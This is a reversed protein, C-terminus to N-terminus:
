DDLGPYRWWSDVLGPWEATFGHHVVKRKAAWAHILTPRGGHESLIALHIAIGPRWAILAIDAPRQDGTAVPKYFTEIASRVTRPSPQEVYRSFPAWLDPDISLVGEHEGVARPLNWCDVGFGIIAHQHLFPTHEWRAAYACIDSRKSM